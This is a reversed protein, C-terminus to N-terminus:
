GPLHPARIRQQGVYRDHDDVSYVQTGNLCYTQDSQPRVVDFFSYHIFAERLANNRPKHMAALATAKGVIADAPTAMSISMAGGGSRM